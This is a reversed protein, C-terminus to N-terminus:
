RKSYSEIEFYTCDIFSINDTRLGIWYKDYTIIHNEYRTAFIQLAGHIAIHLM